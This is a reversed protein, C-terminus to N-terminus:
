RTTELLSTASAAKGRDELESARQDALRLVAELYALGWWGFRRTLSWFREAIASDLRHPPYAVRRDSTLTLDFGLETLSVDPPAEDEVVPAFPRAHGHHSAILHMLLDRDEPNDSTDPVVEAMQVSLMEHRFGAPLQSRRRAAHRQAPTLPLHCSKAWLRRQSRAHTLDGNVLLAQFRPDAKGWDHRDAARQLAAEWPGVPLLPLIEDLAAQVDETHTVLPVPQERSSRSTEDEGDDMAPMVARWLQDDRDVVPRRTSLVVGVGDPYPDCHLGLNPNALNRLTESLTEDQESLAAASETLWKRIQRLHVDSEPDSLWESIDKKAESEPWDGIRDPTLRLIVRGRSNRYAKEAVDASAILSGQEAAEPAPPIHGFVEWGGATVPLVLTDGPAVDRPQEIIRSARLGRWALALRSAAATGDEEPPTRADLLDGREQDDTAREALWARVVGIPVSMCESSSPPCLSVVQTWTEQVKEIGAPPGQETPEPLDWRWCVQVELEGRGPGHLFLSVDPDPHPAPNTQAWVDLYAPLMVPAQTRPALLDALDAGEVAANMADIGFSVEEAEGAINKLWQWTHSLAPGYIPDDHNEAQDARVVVRGRAPTDRGRRNLRGFRQRLADLSACESVMADFDYDAGVELCQTAVVFLPSADPDREAEPGLRQRLQQALRDRDIPRMRGIALHVERTEASVKKGSARLLDYVMRATVIRNVVIAVTQRGEGVLAEAEAVLDRALAEGGRKGRAQSAVHLKVPKTARLRSALLKNRRDDDNLHFVARDEDGPTATMPVVEFPADIPEEAWQRGRYRRVAELTQAFPASIHAEDLFITSDQAVLAAHIPRAADSVGYGRFLLRSGIQDVTSTIITPQTISRAWRNDRVIGGRLLAVDLPPAETDGSVRQLAKAVSHLVPDASEDTVAEALCTAIKQARQHAEDVIVRRNVVFFIRRGVQRQSTPWGAQVALVFVAIDICATKGSATPLAICGPWSEECVQKALRSQWPFPTHGHLAQFFQEFQNASLQSM